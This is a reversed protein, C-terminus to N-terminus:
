DLPMISHTATVTRSPKILRQLILCSTGIIQITCNNLPHIFHDIIMFSLYLLALRTNYGFRGPSQITRIKSVMQVTSLKNPEQFILIFCMRWAM